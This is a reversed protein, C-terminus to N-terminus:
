ASLIDDKLRQLRTLDCQDVLSFKLRRESISEKLQLNCRIHRQFFPIIFDKGSVIKLLNMESYPFKQERERLLRNYLEESYGSRIVSDKIENIKEEIKDQRILAGSSELYYNIHYLRFKGCLENQISYSFFLKMLPTILERIVNQYNVDEKIREIPKTCDLNYAAVCLSDECVIINEICYADLVHLNPIDEKEKYQLYIDGDVIYIKNRESNDEKCCEIVNNRCGLPYIDNITIGTGDLLKGLLKVYFERDEIKDETYIDITNRYAKFVSELQRHEVPTNVVSIKTNGEIQM